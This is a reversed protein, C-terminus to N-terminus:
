DVVFTAVGTANLWKAWDDVVAGGGGSGHLLVVAALRETGPRPIRLEGALIVPKGEKQGILFEQDTLTTSQFPHLEVRAIQAYGLPVMLVSLVSVIAVFLWKRQFLLRLRSMTVEGLARCQHYRRVNVAVPARGRADPNARHKARTRTPRPTLHWKEQVRGGGLASHFCVLLRYGM